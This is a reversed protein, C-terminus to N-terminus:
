HIMMTRHAPFPQDLTGASRQEHYYEHRPYGYDTYFFVGKNVFTAINSVFDDIQSMSKLKM